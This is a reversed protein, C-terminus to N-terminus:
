PAPIEVRQPTAESGADPSVVVLGPELASITANGV